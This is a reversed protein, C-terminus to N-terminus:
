LEANLEISRIVKDNPVDFQTMYTKDVAKGRIEHGCECRAILQPNTRMDVSHVFLLRYNQKDGKILFWKGASLGLTAEKQIKKLNGDECDILDGFVNIDCDNPLSPALFCLESKLHAGRVVRKQTANNAYPRHNPTHAPTKHLFSPTLPLSIARQPTM